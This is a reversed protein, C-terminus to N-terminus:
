SAWKLNLNQRLAWHTGSKNVVGRSKVSDWNKHSPGWKCGWREGHALERFYSKRNEKGDCAAQFLPSLSHSAGLVPSPAWGAPQM